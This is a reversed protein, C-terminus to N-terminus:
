WCSNREHLTKCMTKSFCFTILLLILWYLSHEMTITQKQTFFSCWQYQHIVLYMTMIFFGCTRGFSTKLLVSKRNFAGSHRHPILPQGNAGNSSAHHVSGKIDSCVVLYNEESRLALAQRKQTFHHALPASTTKDKLKLENQCVWFKGGSIFNNV